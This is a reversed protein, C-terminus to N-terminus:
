CKSRRRVEAPKQATELFEGLHPSGVEEEGEFIVKVNVPLTESKLSAQIASLVALGNGKMDSAGRAYIYDDRITPEFPPTTWENIPDVPQVDYHAYVLM